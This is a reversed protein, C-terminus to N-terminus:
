RLEAIISYLSGGPIIKTSKINRFGSDKFLKKLSSLEPLPTVGKLSSNVLNLTAASIDKNQSQFVNVVAIKGKPSLYEKLKSILDFREDSGFYYVIYILM